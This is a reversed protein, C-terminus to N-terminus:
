NENSGRELIGECHSLKRDSVEHAIGVHLHTEAFCRCSQEMSDKNPLAEVLTGLAEKGEHVAPPREM